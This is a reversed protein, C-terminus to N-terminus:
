SKGGTEPATLNAKPTAIYCGQVESIKWNRNTSAWLTLNEITPSAITPCLVIAGLHDEDIFHEPHLAIEQYHKFFGPVTFSKRESLYAFSSSWDNGFAVFYKGQPVEKKLVDSVAYDRSNENNFVTKTIPLYDKSFCFYNSSVMIMTLMFIIYKDGFYHNLVCGLSISIAYILFIINATQYYLHVIHLNTFLFLPVLGLLIAVVITFKITNKTNSFLATILIGIGLLGSLNQEFIRKWIVDSYLFFSLRQELTGWNWSQLNKSTLQVGMESLEKIHDTYLTWFIGIFLPVGFCMVLTFINQKNFLFTKLSRTRKINLLIYSFCLLTLIPLGTTAKQLISLTIFLSFFIQNAYSKNSQIIDMFYNIAVVSFFLATTEIMFTRGWYLYIPSSLLLATFIYFVAPPFHLHKTISRAPILCLVLFLYSVLRGIADFSLNSIKSLIAVIYQYIPFEFPISWPLGAVPTEYALSFGNKAFWYATLATQTQRFSYFDLPVQNAYRIAIYLSYLFCALALLCLLKENTLHKKITSHTIIQM